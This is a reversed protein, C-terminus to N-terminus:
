LDQKSKEPPSFISSWPWYGTKITSSYQQSETNGGPCVCLLCVRSMRLIAEHNSFFSLLLLSFLLSPFGGCFGSKVYCLLIAFIFRLSRCFVARTVIKKLRVIQQLYVSIETDSSQAAQQDGVCTNLSLHKWLRLKNRRFIIQVSNIVLCYESVIFAQLVASLWWPYHDAQTQKEPQELSWQDEWVEACHDGTRGCPWPLVCVWPHHLISFCDAKLILGRRVQCQTETSPCIDLFQFQRAEPLNVGVWSSM